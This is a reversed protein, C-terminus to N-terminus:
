LPRRGRARPGWVRAPAIYSAYSVGHVSGVFHGLGIGLSFLYFLPEFFGSILTLWSRRYVMLNREFLLHARTNRWWATRPRPAREVALASM